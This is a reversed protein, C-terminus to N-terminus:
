SASARPPHRGARRRRGRARRVLKARARTAAGREGEGTEGPPSVRCFELGARALLQPLDRVAARDREWDVESLEEWPVLKPHLKRVPDKEGSTYTWGQRLLDTMWREHEMRAHAEIEEDSFPGAGPAVKALPAPAVVCGAAALKRGIGEAFARNSERLSEPLEEWPVVSPNTEPTAGREREWRVYDEHRLRALLEKMGLLTVEPVLTQRLVGFQAVKAFDESIGQILSAIGSEEDWVTVVLPVSRTEPLGRLVLAATLADAEDALCIYVATLPAANRVAIPEGRQFRGEGVAIREADIECIGSLESHRALLDAVQDPAAPGLVTLQLKEDNTRVTQWRRAAHLAAFAGIEDLGVFLLHPRGPPEAADPFPPHKELLVRAASDLVNFFELHLGSADAASLVQAQLRRWLALDSLHVFLSPSGRGASIVRSAARTVDLNMADDGCTVIMHRARTLRTRRLVTPDAADGKVVPIDRERCGEISGHAPDREIVVVRYGADHFSVALRFGVNGLGVVVVHDRMVLRGLQMRERLLSLVAQVTAAATVVPAAFRAINILWSAEPEDPFELVFLQLAHYLADDLDDGARAFGICGTIYAAAAFVGVVLWRRSAARAPRPSPAGLKRSRRV